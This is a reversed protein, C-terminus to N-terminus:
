GTPREHHMPQGADRRQCLFAAASDAVVGSGNGAQDASGDWDRAWANQRGEPHWRGEQPQKQAKGELSIDVKPRGLRAQARKLGGKALQRIISREFETFASTVQFVLKGM